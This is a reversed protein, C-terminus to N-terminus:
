LDCFRKAVFIDFESTWILHNRDAWEVLWSRSPYESFGASSPDFCRMDDVLVVVNGLRGLHEEITKLEARIPTDIPGRHTDGSSFHGDLWFCVDGSVSDLIESLKDESLGEVVTVNSCDHFRASAALSLKNDPEITWVHSARTALFAATDGHWTGTEIWTGESIGHGQLVSRKIKMPAPMSYGSKEWLRQDRIERLIRPLKLIM